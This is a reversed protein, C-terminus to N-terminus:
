ATGAHPLGPPMACKFSAQLKPFSGLRSLACIMRSRLQAPDQGPFVQACRQTGGGRYLRGNPCWMHWGWASWPCPTALASSSGSRSRGACLWPTAPLAPGARRCSAWRQQQMPAHPLPLPHLSHTSEVDWCSSFVASRQGSVCQLLAATRMELAGGATPTPSLMALLQAVGALQRLQAKGEESCTSPCITGVSIRVAELTAALHVSAFLQACPPAPSTHPRRCAYQQSLLRVNRARCCPLSAMQIQIWATAAPASVPLPMRYAWAMMSLSPLRLCALLKLTALWSAGWRRPLMPLLPTALQYLGLSLLRCAASIWHRHALYWRRPALASLMGPALLLALQAVGAAAAAAGPTRWRATSTALAFLVALLLSSTVDSQAWAATQQRDFAQAALAHQAAAGAAGARGAAAGAPPPPAAPAEAVGDEASQTM